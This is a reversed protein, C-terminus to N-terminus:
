PMLVDLLVVDVAGPNAALLELALVGNEAQMVELGLTELRRVLLLRNVSSDDVVLAKGIATM